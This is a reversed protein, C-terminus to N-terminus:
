MRSRMLIGEGKELSLLTNAETGSWYRVCYRALM